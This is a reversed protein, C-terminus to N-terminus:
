DNTGSKQFTIFQLGLTLCTLVVVSFFSPNPVNEPQLSSLGLEGSHAPRLLWGGTSSRGAVQSTCCLSLEGEVLAGGGVIACNPCLGVALDLWLWPEM